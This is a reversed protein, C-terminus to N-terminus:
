EDQFLDITRVINPHRLREVLFLENKILYKLYSHENQDKTILQISFQQAREMDLSCAWIEGFTGKGLFDKLLYKARAATSPIVLSEL